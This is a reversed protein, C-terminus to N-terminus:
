KKSNYYYDEEMWYKKTMIGDKEIEIDYTRIGPQKYLTFDYDKCSWNPLTYEITHFVKELRRTTTYFEVLKHNELQFIDIYKTDKIIAEKPLLIRVYSKNDAKWQIFLVNKDVVNYKNILKLIQDEKRQTFLHFWTIELRTDISCDLNTNVIKRYERKYYRDTKWWWISTYVPYTYDLTESYNIDGSLWLKWLLSNEEPHFSNVVIDRSSINDILVKAYQSYKKEEKLKSFLIESFDFLIKKPTWLTWVKFTKAEVLTSIVESFNM